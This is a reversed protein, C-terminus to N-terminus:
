ATIAPLRRVLARLEREKGFPREQALAIKREALLQAVRGNCANLAGSANVSDGISDNFNILWPMDALVFDDIWSPEVSAKASSAVPAYALEVELRQVAAQASQDEPHRRLAVRFAGLAQPTKGAAYLNLGKQYYDDSEATKHRKPHSTRTPTAGAGAALLATCALFILEKAAKKM